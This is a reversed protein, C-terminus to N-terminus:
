INLEGIFKYGTGWVTQIFTPKKINDNIKERLSKIHVTVTNNGNVDVNNWIHHYLDGKSFVKNPNQAMLTLIEFEKSTLSVEYGNLLVRNEELIITLGDKFQLIKDIQIYNEKKRGRRLHAEIRASIEMLSFPKTMYDDAGSRLGKVKDLETQKASVIIIPVEENLWRINKCLTFGDMEPLMVDVMVLQFEEKKFDELGEKGTSAWFVEYSEKTLHEKMISAIAEDDEVILIKEKM